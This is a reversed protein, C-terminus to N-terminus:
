SSNAQAPKSGRDEQDKGEPSSPNYTRAVPVRSTENLKQITM